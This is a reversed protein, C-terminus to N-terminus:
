NGGNAKKTLDEFVELNVEEIEEELYDETEKRLFSSDWSQITVPGGSHRKMRESHHFSPMYGNTGRDLQSLVHGQRKNM